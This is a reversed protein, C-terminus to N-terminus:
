LLQKIQQVEQSNLHRWQGLPLSGLKIPGIALRKLNILELNLAQCMRRIQRNLGQYLTIELQTQAPTTRIIEVKAPLTKGEPLTVGQRLCSLQSATVIGRLTVQYIKPLHFRPHTLRHAIQGDNTLLILGTSGCDLRGVPYLRLHPIKVFDVVSLRGQEDKATSLVGQPKHLAIYTLLPAATKILQNDIKIEATQPDVQQGLSAIIGNVVVRQNQILSDVKRRSAVGLSALFKNLRIM